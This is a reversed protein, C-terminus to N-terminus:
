IDLDPLKSPSSPRCVPAEGKQVCARAHPLLLVRSNDNMEIYSRAILVVKSNSSICGGNESPFVTILPVSLVFSASQTGFRSFNHM